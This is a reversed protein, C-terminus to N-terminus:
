FFFATEKKTRWSVREEREGERISRKEEGIRRRKRKDEEAERRKKKEEEAERRREINQYRELLAFAIKNHPKEDDANTGVFSSTM